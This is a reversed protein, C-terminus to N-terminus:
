RAPAAPKPTQQRDKKSSATQKDKALQSIVPQTLEDVKSKLQLMPKSM